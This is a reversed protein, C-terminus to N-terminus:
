TYLRQSELGNDAMRKIKKPIREMFFKRVDPREVKLLLSYHTCSLETRVIHLEDRLLYGKKNQSLNAVCHTALQFRLIFIIRSINWYVQVMAFNVADYAARRAEEIIQTINQYTTDILKVTTSM